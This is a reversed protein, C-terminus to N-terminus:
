TSICATLRSELTPPLGPGEHDGVLDLISKLDADGRQAGLQIWDVVAQTDGARLADLAHRALSATPEHDSVSSTRAVLERLGPELEDIREARARASAYEGLALDARMQDEPLSRVLTTIQLTGTIVFLAIGAYTFRRLDRRLKQGVRRDNQARELFEVRDATSFHRWGAVDRLRGGVKELASILSRVEGLVDLSFLDADLEFRRSLYVFAVFWLGMVGLMTAGAWLDDDPFYHTGLLDGLMVFGLVLMLFIPVHRRVAHGMEHAFVAALESPGMQALLSDSFLVVRSKKTIGVIAANAMTHGTKWVYIRPSEFRALEAVSLLLERQPGDPVPVTEWTNKLLYPLMLGLLGFLGVVFLAYYLRVEHLRVRLEDSTSVISALVVYVVLPALGSAFMRLQFGRWHKLEGPPAVTRARADIALVEFVLFPALVLLITADPWDLFTTKSGTWGRVCTSWGFGVTAAVFSAPACVTLLRYVRESARFRGRLALRQSWAALVYPLPLLGVVLWPAELGSAYGSEAVGLALLAVLIHGLYGM